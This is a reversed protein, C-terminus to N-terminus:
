LLSFRRMLVVGLVVGVLVGGASMLVDASYWERGREPPSAAAAAAADAVNKASDKAFTGYFEDKGAIGAHVLLRRVARQLPSSASGQDSGGGQENATGGASASTAAPSTASASADGNVAAAAPAASKKRKRKGETRSAESAVESAAATGANKAAATSARPAAASSETAGSRGHVATVAPPGVAVEVSTKGTAKMELPVVFYAVTKQSNASAGTRKDSPAAATSSPASGEALEYQRVLCGRPSLGVVECMAQLRRPLRMKAVVTWEEDRSGKPECACQLITSSGQLALLVQTDSIARAFLRPRALKHALASSKAPQPSMPPEEGEGARAVEQGESNEESAKANGGRNNAVNVSQSEFQSLMPKLERVSRRSVHFGHVTWDNNVVFVFPGDCCAAAAVRTKGQRLRRNPLVCEHMVKERQLDWFCLSQKVVRIECLVSGLVSVPSAAGQNQRVYKLKEPTKTVEILITSTAPASLLSSSLSSTAAESHVCESSRRVDLALHRNGVWVVGCAEATVLEDILEGVEGRTFSFLRLVTSPGDGRLHGAAASAAAASGAPCVM